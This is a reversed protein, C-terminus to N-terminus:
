VERRDITLLWHDITLLRWLLQSSWMQVLDSNRPYLDAGLAWLWLGFAHMQTM